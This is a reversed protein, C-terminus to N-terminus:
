RVKACNLIFSNINDEGYEEYSEELSLNFRGTPDIFPNCIETCDYMFYIYKDTDHSGFANNSIFQNNAITIAHKVKVSNKDFRM